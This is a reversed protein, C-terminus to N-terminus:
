ATTQPEDHPGQQTMPNTLDDTGPQDSRPLDLTERAENQTLIPKTGGAGTAKALFEAQDKLTGRMLARENFKFQYRELEDERLLARAAAQEWNTFHELMTYQLFYIGLQEIGSGWSTDDLMMLPRPVGFARSIDEIQMRRQENHQADKATLSFPNAVAGGHLVMWDQDSDLGSFKKLGEVIDQYKEPSLVEKIELSGKAMNGKEFIRRAALEAYYALTIAQNALTMRSLGTVGDPSLDRLHFVERQALILEGKKATNYRYVLSLDDAQEVHM